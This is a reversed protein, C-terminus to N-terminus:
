RTIAAGIAACGMLIAYAVACVALGTHGHFASAGGIFVAISGLAIFPLARALRM